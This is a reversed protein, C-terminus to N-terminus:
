GYLVRAAARAMRDRDHGVGPAIRLSWHFPTHLRHAEERGKDYFTEGRTFRDPGQLKAEQSRQARGEFRRKRDAEGLLVTLRAAFAVKLDAEGLGSGGLGFILPEDMTPLTYVGANAAVIRNAGSIPRFLALRHALQAGASHGYLDYSRRRSGASRALMEFIRDFDSFVWDEPPQPEFSIEERRVPTDSLPDEEDDPWVMTNRIHLDRVVGGLQYAAYNYDESPYGLAAVLLNNRRAPGIWAELHKAANRSGGPLVLLVPSNPTFRGPMFYSVEIRRRERGPGGPVWFSGQGPRLRRPAEGLAPMSGTLACAVGALGGALLYRRPPRQTFISM